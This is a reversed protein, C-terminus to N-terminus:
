EQDTVVVRGNASAKTLMEFKQQLMKASSSNEGLTNNTKQSITQLADMVNRDVAAMNVNQSNAQKPIIRDAAKSIFNQIEPSDKYKDYYVKDNKMTDLTTTVTNASQEATQTAFLATPDEKKVLYQQIHKEADTEKTIGLAKNMRDTHEKQMETTLNNSLQKLSNQMAGFGVMGKSTPIIPTTALLDTGLKELHGGIQAGIRTNRVAWFMLFWTIALGFLM